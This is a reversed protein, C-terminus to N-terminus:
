GKARWKKVNILREEIARLPCFLHMHTYVLCYFVLSFKKKQHLLLEENKKKMGFVLQSKQRYFHM